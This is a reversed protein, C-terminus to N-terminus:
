VGQTLAIIWCLIVIVSLAISWRARLCAGRSLGPVNLARAALVFTVAGLLFAVVNGVLAVHAVLLVIPAVIALAGVTLAVSARREERPSPGGVVPRAATAVAIRAHAAPLPAPTRAAAQPASPDFRRQVTAAA